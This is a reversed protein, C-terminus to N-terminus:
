IENYEIEINPSFATGFNQVSTLTLQGAIFIDIEGSVGSDINKAINAFFNVDAASDTSIKGSPSFAIGDGDDTKSSVIINVTTNPTATIRYHGVEGVSTGGGICITGSLIGSDVDISCSGVYPLVGTFDLREIEVFASHAQFHFIALLFLSCVRIKKKFKVKM